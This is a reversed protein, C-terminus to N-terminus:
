TPKPVETWTQTIPKSITTWNIIGGGDYTISPDSYTVTVDDYGGYKGLVANWNQSSPKSVNTWTM